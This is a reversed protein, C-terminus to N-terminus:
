KVKFMTVSRTSIVEIFPSVWAIEDSEVAQAPTAISLAALSTAACGAALRGFVTM